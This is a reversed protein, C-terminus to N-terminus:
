DPNYLVLGMQPDTGSNESREEVNTDQWAISRGSHDRRWQALQGVRETTERMRAVEISTVIIEYSGINSRELVIRTQM